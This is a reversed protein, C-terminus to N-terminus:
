LFDVRFVWQFSQHQFQFELVKIVQHSSSVWKFFSQHQSLNINSSFPHCLILHNSPMVSEISMLKPSSRSNTISLSAQCAAIWPTAFLLVHSLSQVSSFQLSNLSIVILTIYNLWFFVMGATIHLIFQLPYSWWSCLTWHSLCVITLGWSPCFHYFSLSLIPNKLWKLLLNLFQYFIATFSCPLIFSLHTSM